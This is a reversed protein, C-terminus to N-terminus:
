CFLPWILFKLNDSCRKKPYSIYFLELHIYRILQNLDSFSLLIIFHSPCHYDVGKNLLSFLFSFFIKVSCGKFPSRRNYICYCLVASVSHLHPSVDLEGTRFFCGLTRPCSCDDARPVELCISCSTCPFGFKISLKTYLRETRQFRSRPFRSISYTCYM